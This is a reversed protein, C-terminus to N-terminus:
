LSAEIEETIEGRLDAVILKRLTALPLKKGLLYKLKMVTCEITMDRAEVVGTEILQRGAEYSSINVAGYRVQTCIVVTKNKQRALMAAAHVAGCEIPFNGSGFGCLVIAQANTNEVLSLLVDKDISPVLIIVEVLASMHRCLVIRGKPAPRLRHKELRIHKGIMSALPPMHPSVFPQLGNSSIKTTRNARLMQEAFLITVESLNGLSALYMSLILNRKFDSHVHAPSIICGTFIVPKGLNQLMFSMATATHVVSETKHVVVFGTFNYYNNFILQSLVDWCGNEADMAHTLNASPANIITFDPLAHHKADDADDLKLDNSFKTNIILIKPKNFTILDTVNESM